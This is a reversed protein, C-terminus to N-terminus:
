YQSGMYSMYGLALELFIWLMLPGFSRDYRFRVIAWWIMPLIGAGVILFLAAGFYEGTNYATMPRAPEISVIAFIVGGLICLGLM